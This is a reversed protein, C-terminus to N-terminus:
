TKRVEKEYKFVERKKFKTMKLMLLFVTLM